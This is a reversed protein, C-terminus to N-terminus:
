ATGPETIAGEAPILTTTGDGNSQLTYTLPNQVVRDKWVTKSYAV